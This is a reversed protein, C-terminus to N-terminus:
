KSLDIMTAVNLLIYPKDGHISIGQIFDKQQYMPAPQISEKYISLVESLCDALIGSIRNKHEVVIICAQNGYETAALGLRIHADIININRERLNLVGLMFEPSDPVRTFDQMGVIEIVNSVAVAFNENNLMFTLYLASNEGNGLVNDNCNM